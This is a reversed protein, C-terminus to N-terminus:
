FTVHIKHLCCLTKHQGMGPFCDMMLSGCQDWAFSGSPLSSIWPGLLLAALAPNAACDVVQLEHKEQSVPARSFSNWSSGLSAHITTAPQVAQHDSGRLQM